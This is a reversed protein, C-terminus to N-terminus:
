GDRRGGLIALRRLLEPDAMLETLSRDIRRCWNTALVRGPVNHHELEGLLDDLDITVLASASGALHELVGDLLGDYTEAIEHGVADALRRRYDGLAGGQEAVFAGFPQMDHTRIGAVSRSSVPALGDNPLMPPVMHFQEEHMGLMDWSALARAVEDPVTGLDEGVVVTHHEAATAAIVALLEDRPYRVYVGHAASFGNPVWWLRHVAMVHDIRVLAAHEGARALLQRWLRHGSRRGAGPLQPPLGWNQGDTFFMDPPAGIDFGDAFLEPEAWREFGAPHCGIPLDIALGAAGDDAARAIEALQRDALFQALEYSRLELADTARPHRALFRAFAAVDPRRELFRDLEAATREDLDAALRRMQDRRRRGLESWDLHRGLHPVPAPPLDADDLFVENWHLRSAPSYPSPDFPEDLFTAFLPLTTLVDTGLRGLERALRAVLGLSPLPHDDDWLGYTPVFLSSGGFWRHRGLMSPPAHVFTSTASGTSTDVRLEHCGYPVADDVALGRGDPMVSPSLETGDSLTVVADTVRGAAQGLHHRGDPGVPAVVVPDFAASTVRDVELVEVVAALAAPEATHQQGHVDHYEVEIGLALARQHLADINM